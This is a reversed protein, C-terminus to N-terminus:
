KQNKWSYSCPSVTVSQKRWKLRLLARFIKLDFQRVLGLTCCQVDAPRVFNFLHFITIAPADEPIPSAVARWKAVNPHERESVPLSSPLSSCSLVVHRWSEGWSQSLAHVNVSLRPGVLGNGSGSSKTGADNLTVTGYNKQRHAFFQHRRRSSFM